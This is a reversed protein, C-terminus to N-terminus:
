PSSAFSLLHLREYTQFARGPNAADDGRAMAHDDISLARGAAIVSKATM